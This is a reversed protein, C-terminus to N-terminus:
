QRCFYLNCTINGDVIKFNIGTDICIKITIKSFSHKNVKMSYPTNFNWYGIKDFKSQIPLYKLCPKQIDGVAVIAIIDIYVWM